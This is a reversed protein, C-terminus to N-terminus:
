PRAGSFKNDNRAVTRLHYSIEKCITIRRQREAEEMIGVVLVVVVDVRQPHSTLNDAAAVKQQHIAVDQAVRGGNHADTAFWLRCQGDVTM